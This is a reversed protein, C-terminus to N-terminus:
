PTATDVVMNIVVRRVATTIRVTQLHFKSEIDVTILTNM